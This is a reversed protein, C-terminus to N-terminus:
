QQPAERLEPERDLRVLQVPVVAVTEHQPSEGRERHDGPGRQWPLAVSAGGGGPLRARVSRPASSGATGARVLSTPTCLLTSFGYFTGRVPNLNDGVHDGATPEAVM